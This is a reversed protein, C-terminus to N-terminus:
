CLKIHKNTQDLVKDFSLFINVRLNQFSVKKILKVVWYIEMRLMVRAITYRRDSVLAVSQVYQHSLTSHHKELLFQLVIKRV